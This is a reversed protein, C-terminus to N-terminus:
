GWLIDLLFLSQAFAIFRFVNKKEGKFLILHFYDTDPAWKGTQTSSNTDSATLHASHLAYMM